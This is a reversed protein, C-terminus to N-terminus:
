DSKRIRKQRSIDTLVGRYSIIKDNLYTPFSHTVVPVFTGDKKRAYYENSASQDPETIARLNKLMDLYSDPFLDKVYLGKELDEQTYGLFFLGRKNGYKIRGESTVEYVIQPLMEAFREFVQGQKYLDNLNKQHYGPEWTIAINGNKLPFGMYYGESDDGNESVSLKCAENTINIHQLLELLKTRKGLPTETVFKGVVNERQVFEVQEVNHNLDVLKFGGGQEYSYLALYHSVTQFIEGLGNDQYGTKGNSGVETKSKLFDLEKKLKKNEELIRDYEARLDM